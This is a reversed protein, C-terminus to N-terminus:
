GREILVALRKRAQILRLEDEFRVEVPRTGLLWLHVLLLYAGGRALHREYVLGETVDVHVHLLQILSM